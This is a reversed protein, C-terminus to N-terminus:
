KQSRLVVNDIACACQRAQFTLTGSIKSLGPVNMTAAPQGDVQLTATDGDIALEVRSGGTKGEYKFAAAAQKGGTKDRLTAENATFVVEAAQTANGFECIFFWGTEPSRIEFDFGIRAKALPFAGGIRDVKLATEGGDGSELVYKGDQTLWSGSVAEWDTQQRWGNFDYVKVTTSDTRLGALAAALPVAGPRKLASESAAKADEPRGLIQWLCSLEGYRNSLELADLTDFLDKTEVNRLSVTLEAQGSKIRATLGNLGALTGEIKKTASVIPVAEGAAAKKKRAAEMEELFRMSILTHLNLADIEGAWRTGTLQSSVGDLVGRAEALQGRAIAELAKTKAVAAIETTREDIQELMARAEKGIPGNPDNSILSSCNQNVVRFQGAKFAERTQKLILELAASVVKTTDSLETKAQKAAAGEMEEVRLGNLFSQLAAKAGLFNRSALARDRIALATKLQEELSVRPVEPKAPVVEVAVVEPTPKVSQVPLPLAVKEVVTAARVTGNGAAPAPVAPRTMVYAFGAAAACGFGLMLLAAFHHDSKPAAKRVAPRVAEKVPSEVVPGSLNKGSPRAPATPVIKFDDPIVANCSSSISAVLSSTGGVKEESDDECFIITTGGIVVRDNHSLAQSRVRLGNVFVGNASELDEIVAQNRELKVRCHFRSAKEETLQIRNNEHRGITVTGEFHYERVALKPSIVILLPM